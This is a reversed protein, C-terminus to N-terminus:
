ITRAGKVCYGLLLLSVNLTLVACLHTIIRKRVPLWVESYAYNEKEKDMKTFSFGPLQVVEIILFLCGNQMLKPMLRSYLKRFPGENPFVALVHRSKLSMWFM